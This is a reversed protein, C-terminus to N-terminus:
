VAELGAPNRSKLALWGGVVVALPFVGGWLAVVPGSVPKPPRDDVPPRGILQAPGRLLDDFGSGSSISALEDDPEIPALPGGSIPTTGSQGPEVFFSDSFEDASRDEVFADSGREELGLFEDPLVAQTTTIEGRLTYGNNVGSANMVMVYYSSEPPNFLTVKEPECCQSRGVVATGDWPRATPPLRHQPLHVGLDLDNTSTGNVKQYDWSLYISIIFDEDPGLKPRQIDVVM